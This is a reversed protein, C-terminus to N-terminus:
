NSLISRCFFNCISFFYKKSKLSLSPFKSLNSIDKIELSGENLINKKFSFSSISEYLRDIDMLEKKKGPIYSM